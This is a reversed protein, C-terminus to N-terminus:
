RLHSSIVYTMFITTSQFYSTKHGKSLSLFTFGSDNLDFFQFAKRLERALVESDAFASKVSIKQKLNEEIADLRSEFALDM